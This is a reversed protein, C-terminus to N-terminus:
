REDSAHLEALERDLRVLDEDRDASFIAELRDCLPGRVRRFQAAQARVRTAHDRRAESARMTRIEYEGLLDTILTDAESRTLPRPPLQPATVPQPPRRPGFCPPEGVVLRLAKALPATRYPIRLTACISQLLNLADGHDTPLENLRVVERVLRLYIGDDSRAMAVITETRHCTSCIVELDQDWERGLREYTRHHVELTTRVGCRECRYGALSLAHNRRSRWAASQLYTRYDRPPAASIREFM